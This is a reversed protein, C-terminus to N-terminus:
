RDGDRESAKKVEGDRPGTKREGEGDRPGAKREADGDRRVKDGGERIRNGDKGAFSINWIGNDRAADLVEHVAKFLAEDDARVVVSSTRHESFYGRLANIAITQGNVTVTEGRGKVDLTIAEGKSAKLAESVKKNSEGERPGKRAGEGDRPGEKRTEGDRPGEKRSEGDRAGERKTEGDRPGTKVQEGDGEKSTGETDAGAKTLTLVALAPILLLAALSAIVSKAPKMISLIRTHIEHRRRFFPILAPSSGPVRCELAKFLAPAYAKRQPETLKALAMRDCDLERDAHFRRLALWALPNFWHLACAALGLWSWLVDSRRVHALEHLLIGRIEDETHTQRLNAPVLVIPKLWGSVAATALGPMAVLGVRRQLGMRECSWRFLSVTQRDPALANRSVWRRILWHSGCLWVGATAVGLAWIGAAVFQWSVRREDPVVHVVMPAMTEDEEMSAINSTAPYAKSVDGAIVKELSVGPHGPLEPVWPLLLRLLLAAAFFMRWRSPFGRWVGFALLIMGPVAMILSTHWAWAAGDQLLTMIKM